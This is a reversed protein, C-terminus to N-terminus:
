CILGLGKDLRFERHAADFSFVSKSGLRTLTKDNFEIEALSREGTRLVDAGTLVDALRATREAAATAKYRVDNKMETLAASTLPIAARVDMAFVIAVALAISGIRRM